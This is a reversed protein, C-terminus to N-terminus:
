PRGSSHGQGWGGSKSDGCVKEELAVVGRVEHLKERGPEALAIGRLEMVRAEGHVWYLLLCLAPAEYIYQFSGPHGQPVGVEVRLRGSGRLTLGQAM